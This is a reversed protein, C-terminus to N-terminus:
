ATASGRLVRAALRLPRRAWRLAPPGEDAITPVFLVQAVCAVRDVVRERTKAWFVLPALGPPRRSFIDPAFVANVDLRLRGRVTEMLRRTDSEPVLAEESFQFQRVGLIDHALRLALALLRKSHTRAALRLVTRVTDPELKRMLHAVDCIWRLREWEHKAGHACLFLFLYEPALVRIAGGACPIWRSASWLDSTSIELRLHRELLAWHLEVKTRSDSFELAHQGAVLSPEHAMAYEPRYGLSLLLERAAPLDDRRVLLDMDAFPRLSPDGYAAVGIAPGKMVLTEIGARQFQDSLSVTVLTRALTLARIERERDAAMRLVSAPIAADCLTRLNLCVVAEVEWGAARRLVADWDLRHAFLSLIRDLSDDAIPIRCLLLVLETEPPLHSTTFAAM